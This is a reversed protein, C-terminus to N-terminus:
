LVGKNVQLNLRKIEHFVENELDVSASELKEDHFKMVFEPNRSRLKIRGNEMYIDENKQSIDSVNVVLPTDNIDHDQRQQQIGHHDQIQTNQQANFEEQELSERELRARENQVVVIEFDTM